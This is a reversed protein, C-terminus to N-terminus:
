SQPGCALAKKITILSRCNSQMKIQIDEKTQRLPTKMLYVMKRFGDQLGMGTAASCPQIFWARGQCVRRLDLKQCLVGASLAGSLDQKNALIVLPIGRLIESHLARHLEKRAEELRKQDWSDVVFLVGAADPYFHKWHPRMARQGGIDWVTLVLSSRDADLSEVNFGVTQVTWVNENFKLKYLLSTKGSGDLGLMLVHAQKQPKSSRTGM